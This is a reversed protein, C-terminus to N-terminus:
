YRSILCFLDFDLTDLTNNELVPLIDASFVPDDQQSKPIDPDITSLKRFYYRGHEFLNKYEGLVIYGPLNQITHLEDKLSIAM